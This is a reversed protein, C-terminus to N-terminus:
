KFNFLENLTCFPATRAKPLRSNVVVGGVLWWKLNVYFKFVARLESLEAFVRRLKLCCNLWFIFMFKHKYHNRRINSSTNLGFGFVDCRVEIQKRQQGNTVPIAYIQVTTFYLGSLKKKMETFFDFKREPINRQIETCEETNGINHTACCKVATQIHVTSCYQCYLWETFRGEIYVSFDESDKSFHNNFKFFPNNLTITECLM